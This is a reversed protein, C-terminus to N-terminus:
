PRQRGVALQEEARRGVELAYNLSGADKGPKAHAEQGQGPAKQLQVLRPGFVRTGLSQRPVRQVPPEAERPPAERATREWASGPFSFSSLEGIAKERMCSFICDAVM